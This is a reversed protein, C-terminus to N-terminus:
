QTLNPNVVESGADLNGGGPFRLHYWARLGEKTLKFIARRNQAIVKFWALRGMMPFYIGRFCLRSVLINIRYLIPKGDLSDVAYAVAEPSYSRAWGQKVEAHAEAISMKLPTHAM